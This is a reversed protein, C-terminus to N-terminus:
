SRARDRHRRTTVSSRWPGDGPPGAPQGPIALESFQIHNNGLVVHHGADVALRAVTRGISGSGIVAITTRGPAL